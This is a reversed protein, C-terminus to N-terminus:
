RTLVSLYETWPGVENTYQKAMVRAIQVVHDLDHAVWTALLQGLTVDGLSPHRGRRALDEGTLNWGRLTELNSKRLAAFQALLQPLTRGKSERFMAFRDFPEFPVTDGKELIMRVRPIWDTREGHILHGIVDYPSWTGPGESGEVWGKPLGELLTSLVGPTRELVALADKMVFNM